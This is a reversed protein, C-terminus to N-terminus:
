AADKSRITLRGTLAGYLSRLVLASLPWFIAIWVLIIAASRLNGTIPSFAISFSVWLLAGILELGAVVGLSRLYGHRRVLRLTERCATVGRGDGAGAAIPGLAFFPLVFPLVLLALPGLVAIVVAVPPTATVATLVVAGLHSRLREGIAATVAGLLSLYAVSGTAAIVALNVGDGADVAALVAIAAAPLIAAALAMLGYTLFGGGYRVFATAFIDGVPISPAPAAATAAAAKRTTAV